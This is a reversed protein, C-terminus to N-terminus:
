GSHVGHKSAEVSCDSFIIYVYMNPCYARLTQRNDAKSIYKLTNCLHLLFVSYRVYRRDVSRPQIYVGIDVPLFDTALSCLASCCGM